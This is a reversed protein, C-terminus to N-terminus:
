AGRAAAAVARAMATHDAPCPCAGAVPAAPVVPGLRGGAVVVSGLVHRALASADRGPWPARAAGHDVRLAGHALEVRLVGDREAFAFAAAVLALRDAEALDDGASPETPPPAGSPAGLGFRRVGDPRALVLALPRVTIWPAAGDDARWRAWAAQAVVSGAPGARQPAGELVARADVHWVRAPASV